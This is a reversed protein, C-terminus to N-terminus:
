KLAAVSCRIQHFLMEATNGMLLGALGSRGLTGLILTHVAREQVFRAIETSAEGRVLHLREPPVEVGSEQLLECLLEGSRKQIAQELVVFDTTQMYDKVLGEGQINWAHLVHLTGGLLSTLLEGLRLLNINLERLQAGEVAPDIAVLLTPHVPASVSLEQETAARSVGAAPAVADSAVAAPAVADPAVVAPAVAASAIKGASDQPDCLWIPCPCNRLLEFATGSFFQQRRSHPGKTARVLLDFKGRQVLRILQEGTRGVLLKGHADLGRGRPARVIRRLRTARDRVILQQRAQSETLLMRQSWTLKPVVDVVVLQARFRRAVQVARELPVGGGTEVDVAVLIKQIARM